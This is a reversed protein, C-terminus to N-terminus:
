QYMAECPRASLGAGCPSHIQIANDPTATPTSIAPQRPEVHHRRPM